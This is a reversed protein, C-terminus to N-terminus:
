KSLKFFKATENCLLLQLLPRRNLYAFKLRGYCSFQPSKLFYMM